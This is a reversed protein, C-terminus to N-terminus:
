EETKNKVISKIGADGVKTLSAFSLFAIIVTSSNAVIEPVNKLASMLISFISILCAFIFGLFALLRSMSPKGNEEEFFKM